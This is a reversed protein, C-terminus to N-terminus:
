AAVEEIVPPALWHPSLPRYYRRAQPQLRYRSAAVATAVRAPEALGLQSLRVEMARPSVDFLDALECPRQFGDYFAARLHKKPMLVCGAFYEAVYEVPVLGYITTPLYGGLGPHYHDVIHKYEHIATFRQRTAPEDPNVSIVWARRHSDWHSSGSAAHRPLDADLDLAIRPLDTVIEVPVPLNTIQRLRLLRDAQLEALQLAEHLLLRRDPLLSRLRTLVSSNEATTHNHM